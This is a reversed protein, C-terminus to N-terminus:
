NIASNTPLIEAITAFMGELVDVGLERNQVEDKRMEVVAVEFRFGLLHLIKAALEAQVFPNQRGFAVRSRNAVLRSVSIENVLKGEEKGWFRREGKHDGEAKDIGPRM